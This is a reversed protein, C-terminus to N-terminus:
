RPQNNKIINGAYRKIRENPFRAKIRSLEEEIRRAQQSDLGQPHPFGLKGRLGIVYSELAVIAEGNDPFTELFQMSYKMLEDTRDFSRDSASLLSLLRSYISPLYVSHPFQQILAKGDQIAQSISKWRGIKKVIEAAVMREEASPPIVRVQLTNSTVDGLVAWVTYAGPLLRAGPSEETTDNRHDVRFSETVNSRPPVSYPIAYYDVILGPLVRRGSDDTVRIGIHHEGSVVVEDHLLNVRTVDLWINEGWVYVSKDASLELAVKGKLSQAFGFTPCSMAIAAFCVLLSSRERMYAAGSKNDM